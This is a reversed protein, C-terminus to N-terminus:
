RIWRSWRCRRSRAKSTRGVPTRASPCGATIRRPRTTWRRCWWRDPRRAAAANTAVVNTISNLALNACITQFLVRQPEFAFVRGTPGVAKALPVTHAGVNSGVEVVIEGPRLVQEFLLVEGNSFEGCFDLSRGVYSDKPNSVMAGHRCPKFANFSPFM